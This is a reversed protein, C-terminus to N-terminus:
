LRSLSSLNDKNTLELKDANEKDTLATEKAAIEQDKAATVSPLKSGSRQSLQVKSKDRRAVSRSKVQGKRGILGKVREQGSLCM